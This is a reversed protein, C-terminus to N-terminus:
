LRGRMEEIMQKLGDKWFLPKWEGIQELVSIDAICDPEQERMPVAGKNVVSKRGTEDWIYDVIEAITPACGTGVPIECYGRLKSSMVNEIALLVDSVSIIDRKQIGLTTNVEEGVLMSYILGPLFRDRPEDSGYFMELQLSYFDISRKEAYFKGFENFIKKSFSYMNLQEPLGTGITLFKSTGKETAANLVNLPFEINSAIVTEYLTDARGYNSAMNLIWDFRECQLAAEIAEIDASIMKIRKNDILDSLRTIDSDARKTCVIYHGGASLRHVLKNGLYGTAGLVLINM